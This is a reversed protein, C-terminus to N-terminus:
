SEACPGGLARCLAQALASEPTDAFGMCGQCWAKWMGPALKGMACLNARSIRLLMGAREREPILRYGQCDAFCAPSVEHQNRRLEPYRPVKGSSGCAECPSCEPTAEGGGHCFCDPSSQGSGNCPYCETEQEALWQTCSHATM